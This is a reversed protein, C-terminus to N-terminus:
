KQVVADMFALKAQYRKLVDAYVKQYNEQITKAVLPNNFLVACYLCKHLLKGVKIRSDWKQAQEVIHRPGDVFIWIKIFDTYQSKYLSVADNDVPEGLDFESISNSTLGCCGLVHNNPNLAITDFVDSCGHDENDFNTKKSYVFKREKHFSMWIADIILFNDFNESNKIYRQYLPNNLFDRKKFKADEHTEFAIVVRLGLKLAAISGYMINEIPVWEQHDDGTSFNLEQLGNAVLPKLRELAKDVSRAWFGNTVIRSSFGKSKAYALMDDLKKGISFSEGGSWVIYSISDVNSIQDVFSKVEQLSLKQKLKPSCEFCCEKCAATCHFTTMIAANAPQQREILESLESNM